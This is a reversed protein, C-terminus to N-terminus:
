RELMHDTSFPSSHVMAHRRSITTLYGKITNVALAESKAQLFNLIHKLSMHIPNEGRESCWSVFSEWRGKYVAGTTDRTAALITKIAAESFGRDQLSRWEAKM